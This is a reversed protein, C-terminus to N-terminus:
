IYWYESPLTPYVWCSTQVFIEEGSWPLIRRGEVLVEIQGDEEPLIVMNYVKTYGFDKMMRERLLTVISNDFVEKAMTGIQYTM